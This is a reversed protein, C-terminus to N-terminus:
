LAIVIKEQWTQGIGDAVQLIYTGPQLENGIQFSSSNGETYNVPLVLIQKGSLDFVRAEVASMDPDPLAITLEGHSVPNPYVNLV